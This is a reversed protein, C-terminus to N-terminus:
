EESLPSILPQSEQNLLLQLEYIAGVLQHLRVDIDSIKNSLNRKENSLVEAEESLLSIRKLISDKM